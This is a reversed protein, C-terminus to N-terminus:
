KSEQIFFKRCEEVKDTNIIDAGLQHLNRWGAETDPSAWLRIPKGLAHVKNIVAKVRSMDSPSQQSTYHFYNDSIFAVRSLTLSDYSEDPRGDFFIYVPYHTWQAVPGRDGSLVIQVAAPNQSRDFYRRYPQLLQILKPIVATANEKIDLMLIVHYGADESLHDHHQLFLEELPHLYMRELTKATDIDARNHAVALANGALFIDAEVSYVKNNLANVLPQPKQYDNHAHLHVQASTIVPLLFVGILWDAFKNKM